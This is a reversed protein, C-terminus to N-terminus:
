QGVLREAVRKAACLKKRVTSQGDRTRVSFEVVHGRTIGSLVPDVWAVVQDGDVLERRGDVCRWKM